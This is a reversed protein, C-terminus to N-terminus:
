FFISTVANRSVTRIEACSFPVAGLAPKYQDITDSDGLIQRQYIKYITFIYM